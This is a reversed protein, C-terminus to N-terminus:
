IVMTGGIDWMAHHYWEWFAEDTEFENILQKKTYGQQLLAEYKQAEANIIELAQQGYESAWFAEWVEQFNSFDVNPMAELLPNNQMRKSGLRHVKADKSLAELSGMVDLKRASSGVPATYKKYQQFTSLYENAWGFFTTRMKTDIARRAEAAAAGKSQIAYQGPTVTKKTYRGAAQQHLKRKFAQSKRYTAYRANSQRATKLGQKREFLQQPSYNGSKSYTSKIYQRLAEATNTDGMKEARDAARKMRRRANYAQDSASSHHSRKAAKTAANALPNLNVKPPNPVKTKKASGTSVTKPAVVKVKNSSSKRAM